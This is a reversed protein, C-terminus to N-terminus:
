ASLKVVYERKIGDKCFTDAYVEVFLISKMSELLKQANKEADEITYFTSSIAKYIKDTIGCWNEGKETVSLGYITRM